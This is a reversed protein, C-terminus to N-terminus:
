QKGEKRSQRRAFRIILVVYVTPFLLCALITASILYLLEYDM